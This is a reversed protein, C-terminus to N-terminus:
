CKEDCVYSEFECSHSFFEVNKRRKRLFWEHTERIECHAQYGKTFNKNSHNITIVAHGRKIWMSVFMDTIKWIFDCCHENMREKSQNFWQNM